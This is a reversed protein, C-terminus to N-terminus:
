ISFLWVNKHTWMIFGEPENVEDKRVLVVVGIPWMPWSEYLSKFDMGNGFTIQFTEKSVVIQGWSM